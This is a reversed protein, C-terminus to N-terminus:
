EIKEFVRHALNGVGHHTFRLEVSVIEHGASRGTAIAERQGDPLYEGALAIGPSADELATVLSEFDETM